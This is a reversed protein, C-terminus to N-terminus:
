AVLFFYLIIFTLIGKEEEKKEETLSFGENCRSRSGDTFQRFKKEKRCSITNNSKEIRLRRTTPYIKLSAYPRTRAFVFIVTDVRARCPRILTLLRERRTVIEPSFEQRSIEVVHLYRISIAM